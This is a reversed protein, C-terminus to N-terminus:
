PISELSNENKVYLSKGYYKENNVMKKIALCLRDIELPKYIPSVGYRLRQYLPLLYLTAIKSQISPGFIHPFRLITYKQSTLKVIEEAERKTQGYFGTKEPYAALWTSAFIFHSNKAFRLLNKTGGVNVKRMKSLSTINYKIAALHIIVDADKAAREIAKISHLSGKVTETNPHQVGVNKRSLCIVKHDELLLRVLRSGIFGTAGTLLIRKM